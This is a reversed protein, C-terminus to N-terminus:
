AEQIKREIFAVSIKPVIYKYGFKNYRLAHKLVERPNKQETLWKLPPRTSNICIMICHVRGAQGSFSGLHSLFLSPFWLSSYFKQRPCSASTAKNKCSVLIVFIMFLKSSVYDIKRSVTHDCAAFTSVCFCVFHISICWDCTFMHKRCPRSLHNVSCFFGFNRWLKCFAWRM